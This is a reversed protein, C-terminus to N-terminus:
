WINYFKISHMETKKNLVVAKCLQISAKSLYKMAKYRGANEVILGYNGSIDHRINNLIRQIM